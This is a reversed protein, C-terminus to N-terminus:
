HISTLLYQFAILIEVVKHEGKSATQPVPSPASRSLLLAHSGLNEKLKFALKLGTVIETWGLECPFSSAPTNIINMAKLQGFYKKLAPYYYYLLM